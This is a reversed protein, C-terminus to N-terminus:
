LNERLYITRLELWYSSSDGPLIREVGVGGFVLLAKIQPTEITYSMDALTPQYNSNAAPPYRTALAAIYDDFDTDVITEGNLTILLQPSTSNDKYPNAWTIQYEGREGAVLSVSDIGDGPYVAWGYGDIEMTAMPLRLYTSLYQRDGADERHPWTQAFGLRLEFVDSQNLDADFWSPLKAQRQNALYSIAGTIRERVARQPEEVAAVLAGDELMNEALLLKELRNVQLHVPLDQVNVAPLVAFVAIAALLALIAAHAKAQRLLLWLCAAAAFLGLLVYLYSTATLGGANLEVILAWAEFALVVLAAYPFLRRYWLAWASAHHTLLIHLWIGLLTYSASIAAIQEFAAGLGSIMTKFAWLLLVLTLALALPVLIYDLLIEVFRPQQQTKERREKDHGPRFDPFYGVFVTFAFVGALTAIYQYVKFSMEPYILVAVAGAVGAAGAWAVGGYLLAILLSKHTMFFSRACDSQVPPYAALWIFAILSVLLAVAMRGAALDSLLPYDSWGPQYGGSFYLLIFAIVAALAALLNAALEARPRSSLRSRAATVMALGLLSALAFSWMLCTFLLDYPLQAEYDLHIRLLATLAFLLAGAMTVPYHLFSQGAGRFVRAVSLGFASM